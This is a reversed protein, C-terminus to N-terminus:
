KEEEPSLYYTFVSGCIDELFLSHRPFPTMYLMLKIRSAIQSTHRQPMVCFGIATSSVAITDQLSEPEVPQRSWGGQFSTQLIVRWLKSRLALVRFKRVHCSAM